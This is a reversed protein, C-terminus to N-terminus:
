QFRCLPEKNSPNLEFFGNNAFWNVADRLADELPRPAYGLERSAKSSDFYMFRRSMKVAEIAVAPPEHTVWDSWATSMQGSLWALAYPIKVKPAARGVLPSLKALFASLSLNENGLIYREGVKGREAALIHGLAVDRVDVFCLGTEVFAPMKGRAFDVIVKGTPTPKRDWPGIPTSPNVIVLPLGRTVMDLAVEEAEIKSRKYHSTVQHPDMPTSENGPSPQGSLGITGVTSTYVVRAVNQKLCEELLNQTGRVNSQQIEAWDRAWFRYDAAVHYVEDCGQVAPVLSAADRLDGECIEVNLGDCNRRDGGPRVLVKVARGKDLLARVVNAGIFGTAGTVLAQKM